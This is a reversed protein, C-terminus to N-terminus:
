RSKQGKVGLKQLFEEMIQVGASTGIRSAGADLMMMVQEYTRIGGSAKIGIEPSVSERLLMVDEITAGGPGFGTSTKVFDAGAEEVVRCAIRKEMNTLYCTEIIVKVLITGASEEIEKQRVVDVVTHIDRHVIELDGAKLAGINMVMDIERAGREIVNEAEFRKTIPASAGLPFGVVTGVKVPSNKLLEAALNVYFPNVFVTAFNYARAERCLRRIDEPIADPRLLTYDISKALEGKTITM